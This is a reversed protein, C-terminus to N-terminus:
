KRDSADIASTLREVQERLADRLRTARRRAEHLEAIGAPDTEAGETADDIRDIAYDIRSGLDFPLFSPPYVSEPDDISWSLELPNERDTETGSQPWMEDSVMQELTWRVFLSRYPERTFDYGAAAIVAGFLNSREDEAMALLDIDAIRTGNWTLDSADFLRM